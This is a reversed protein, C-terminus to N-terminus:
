AVSVHGSWEDSTSLYMPQLLNLGRAGGPGAVTLHPSHFISHNRESYSPMVYGNLRVRDALGGKGFLGFLQISFISFVLPTQSLVYTFM